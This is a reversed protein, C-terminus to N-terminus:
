RPAFVAAFARELASPYSSEEPNESFYRQQEPLSRDSLVDRLRALHRARANVLPHDNVGLYDILAAVEHDDENVPEFVHDDLVYRVRTSLM